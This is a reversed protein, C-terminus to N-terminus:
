SKKPKEWWLKPWSDDLLFEITGPIPTKIKRKLRPRLKNAWEVRWIKHDREWYEETNVKEPNFFNPQQAHKKKKYAKKCVKIIRTVQNIAYNISPVVFFEKTREGYGDVKLLMEFQHHLESEVIHYNFVENKYIVRFQGPVGEHKSLRDARKNPDNSKGIKVLYPIYKNALIYIYGQNTRSVKHTKLNAM